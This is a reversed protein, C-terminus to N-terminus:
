EFTVIKQCVPLTTLGYGREVETLASMIRIKTSFIMFTQQSNCWVVEGGGVSGFGEYDQSKNKLVSWRPSKSLQELSHQHLIASRALSEWM